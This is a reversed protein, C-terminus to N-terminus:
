IEKRVFLYRLVNEDYNLTQEIPRVRTPDLKAEFYLYYAETFRKINYAMQRKGWDEFVPAADEGEGHTLTTKMKEIFEKRAEDELDPQVVFTVEYVRLDSM